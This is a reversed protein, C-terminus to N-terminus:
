RKRFIKKAKAILIGREEKNLFVFMNIGLFIVGLLIAVGFFDMWNTINFLSKILFGVVILLTTSVMCMIVTPYFTRKKLGLYKATYPVTYLINRIFNVFTSVGAIAYIGLNTTKLLIFVILTSTAGSLIMFISNTKVKNVTSFVKYLIQIGASYSFGICGLMTLIALSRADQSPVWLEYFEKSMVVIGALPIILIVSTMKMAREIDKLIKEKDGMAYNIVMEPFFASSISSALNRVQGTLVKSLALIGMEAAGIFLNCIILDLGNLLMVGVSSISNWIGSGVLEKIIAFSCIIKKPKLRVHLEPTLKHTNYWAVASTGLGLIITVFGIYWVKPELLIMMSIIMVARFVSFVINPVYTRDLRNAIFTGCDWNPLGTQIFFNLIIFSFLIKVDLLIENPVNVVTELRVILYLAPLFLFAVIIWNGWFVSNYYLNAKKYDEKVYEIAIFRGAMGNLAIVILSAYSIFNNALSVFGNAEIGITRIIFPSLWFNVILNTLLVAISSILNIVTRNRKIM